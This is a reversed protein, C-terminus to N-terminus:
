KERTNIKNEIPHVDRFGECRKRFRTTTSGDAIGLHQFPSISGSLFGFRADPRDSREFIWRDSSTKEEEIKQIGDARPDDIRCKDNVNCLITIIVVPLLITLNGGDLDNRKKSILICLM